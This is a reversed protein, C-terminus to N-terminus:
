NPTLADAAENLAMALLRADAVSLNTFVARWDYLTAMDFLVTTNSEVPEVRYRVEGHETEVPFMADFALKQQENM